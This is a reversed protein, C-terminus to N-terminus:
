TRHKTKTQTAQAGSGEVIALIESLKWLTARGFKAPPPFRGDTVGKLWTSRSIPLISNQNRPTRCIDSVRVWVREDRVTNPKKHQVPLEKTITQLRRTERFLSAEKRILLDLLELLERHIRKLHAIESALDM